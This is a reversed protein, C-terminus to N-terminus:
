ECRLVKLQDRRLDSMPPPSGGAALVDLGRFRHGELGEAFVDHEVQLGRLAKDACVGQDVLDTLTALRDEALRVVVAHKLPCGNTVLVCCNKGAITTVLYLKNSSSEM